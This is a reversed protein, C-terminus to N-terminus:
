TSIFPSTVIVRPIVGCSVIVVRRFWVRPCRVVRVVCRPSMSVVVGCLLVAVGRLSVTVGCPTVVSLEV